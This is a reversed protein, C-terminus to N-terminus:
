FFQPKMRAPQKGTQPSRHPELGADCRLCLVSLFASAAAVAAAFDAAVADPVVGPEVAAARSDADPVAVAVGAAVLAIADAAFDVACHVLAGAAAVAVFDVADVAAPVTAAAAFDVGHQVAVGFVAVAPAIADVASDADHRVVADFEAAAVAAALGASPVVAGGADSEPAAACHIVAYAAFDALRAAARAGVGSELGAASVFRLGAGRGAAVAAFGACRDIAAGAASDARRNYGSCGSDITM